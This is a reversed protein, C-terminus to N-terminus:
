RSIQLLHLATSQAVPMPRDGKMVQLAAAPRATETETQGVAALPLEVIFTSGRGVGASEAHVTGGHLEVLSKVISLGLGLGGRRMGTTQGQRFREFIHPLLDPAIGEGSDAVTIKLQAGTYHLAVDISGNSPTFKIANSLLNWIVQEMRTADALLRGAQGTVVRRITIDKAQASPMVSAIAQEIIEIPDCAAVCLQLKGAIVRSADLLDDVLQSQVRAARAINALGERLLTDTPKKDSLLGCWGIISTLPTRLEHSVTALLQEKMQDAEQALERGAHEARAASRLEDRMAQERRLTVAVQLLLSTFMIVAIFCMVRPGYIAFRRAAEAHSAQLRFRGLEESRIDDLIQDIEHNVMAGKVVSEQIQSQTAQAEKLSVQARFLDLRRVILADLAMLSAREREDVSALTKLQAASDRMSRSARDLDSTFIPVGTIVYGRANSEAASLAGRFQGMQLLVDRTHDLSDVSEAVVRTSQDSIWGIALLSIVTTAALVVLRNPLM